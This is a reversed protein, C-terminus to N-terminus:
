EYSAGGPLPSLGTNAQASTSLQRFGFSADLRGRGPIEGM